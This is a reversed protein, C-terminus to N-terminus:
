VYPFQTYIYIHGAPTSTPPDPSWPVGLPAATQNPRVSCNVLTREKGTSVPVFTIKGDSEEHPLHGQLPHPALQLLLWPLCATLLVGLVLSGRHPGPCETLVLGKAQSCGWRSRRM